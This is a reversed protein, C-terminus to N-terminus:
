RNDHSVLVDASATTSKGSADMARYTITYTRDNGTGSREARLFIRGDETTVIDGTTNGSGQGDEPESTTVSLLTVRPRSDAGDSVALIPAIEVLQHNVPALVTPSVELHLRLETDTGGASQFIDNLAATLDDVGAGPLFFFLGGTQASIQSYVLRASLIVFDDDSRSAKGSEIASATSLASAVCDGTLLTNVRVGSAQLASITSAVAGNGGHPSADTVFIVEKSMDDDGALVSAGTSLAGLGEEPCDDGGDAFLPAVMGQITATDTTTGRFSVNDKFTILSWEIDPSNPQSTESTIFNALTAKVAGIEGGMSGTDDIVMAIKKGRKVQFKWPKSSKIGCDISTADLRAKHPGLALPSSSTFNLTGNKTTNLEAIRKGDLFLEYQTNCNNGTKVDIIFQPRQTQVDGNPKPAKPTISYTGCFFPKQDFGFKDYFVQYFLSNGNGKPDNGGWTPGVYPTYNFLIATPKNAPCVTKGDLTDKPSNPEWGGQLPEGNTLRDYDLRLQDGTKTLQNSVTSGKAYGTINKLRTDSPRNPMTATSSEKQLTALIVQPNINNKQATNYILQAPDILNGDVDVIQHNQDGKLFSDYDQLFKRIDELTMTNKNTFTSDRLFAQDYVCPGGCDGAKQLRDIPNESVIGSVANLPEAPAPAEEIYPPVSVPAYDKIVNGARDLALMRYYTTADFFDSNAARAEGTDTNEGGIDVVTPTRDEPLGAAELHYIEQWTGNPSSAASVIYAEAAPAPDFMLVINDGMNVGTLSDDVNSQTQNHKTSPPPTSSSAIGGLVRVLVFGDTPGSLKLTLQNEEAPSIGRNVAETNQSFESAAVIQQGNFSVTVSSLRHEGDAGGNVINLIYPEKDSPLTFTETLTAPKKVGGGFAKQYIVEGGFVTPASALATALFFLARM